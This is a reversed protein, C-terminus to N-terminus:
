PSWSPSFNYGMIIPDYVQVLGSGDVNIVFLGTDRQFIIKTGDPSWSPHDGGKELLRLESGDSNVLYLNPITCLFENCRYVESSVFVIQQGDPSWEAAYADRLTPIEFHQLENTEVDIIYLEGYRDGDESKPSPSTFLISKGDPSWFPDKGGIETLVTQNHTETEIIRLKSIGVGSKGQIASFAIFKGDPSWALDGRVADQGDTLKQVSSICDENLELCILDVIFLDNGGGIFTPDTGDFVLNRGDPSLAMNRSDLNSFGMSTIEDFDPSMLFIDPSGNNDYLFAIWGQKNFMTIDLTPTPNPTFTTFTPQPTYTKIPIKTSTSLEPTQTVESACGVLLGVVVLIWGIKKM